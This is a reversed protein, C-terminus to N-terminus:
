SGVPTAAPRHSVLQNAALSLAEATFVLPYLREHYWIKSPYFGLVAPRRHADQEIAAALWHLGQSVAKAYEPGRGALPLLATLALSTEEVTCFKAMAENTRRARFGDSQSNSYYVKSRPPGWGGTSHQASLLWAAASQATETDLRDLDACTILVEATGIVPNEDNTHFENGFWRAVYSGDARGSDTLYNWGREIAATLARQARDNRLQRWNNLARIAVSTVDASSPDLQENLPERSFTAFGGDENQLKSLWDIGRAAASEIEDRRSASQHQLTHALAILARATDAANPLAGLADSDAWGGAPLGTLPNTHKRQGDLLWDITPAAFAHEDDHQERQPHSHSQQASALDVTEVDNTTATDAWHAQEAHAAFPEPELTGEGRGEGLPLPLSTASALSNLALTTVSTSLNAAVPWSADARVTSLLFEIGREVIRHEQCGIGGLSMVVFSTAPISALFSDDAAQLRELQALAKARMGRRLLRMVPNRPPDNHYKALGAALLTSTAPRAVPMQVRNRWRSPLGYLEFPLTPVQRWPGIDALACNVLVAAVFARDHGYDRRLASIGGQKTVYEDALGMLDAYRAPIGTHRFAAQVMLTAAINSEAGDCDSWGGDSNQQRALWHVSELLFECLDGQVIGPGIHADHAANKSLFDETDAHHAVVL